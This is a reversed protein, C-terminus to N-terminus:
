PFMQGLVAWDGADLANSAAIQAAPSVHGSLAKAWLARAADLDRTRVAAGMEYITRSYEITNTGAVADFPSHADIWPIAPDPHVILHAGPQIADGLVHNFGRLTSEAICLRQGISILNDNPVVIYAYIGQANSVVEGRAGPRVGRDRLADANLLHTTVSAADPGSISISAESTCDGSGDDPSPTPTSAADPAPAPATTHRVSSAASTTHSGSGGIASFAPAALAVLGAIVATAAVGTAIQAARSV